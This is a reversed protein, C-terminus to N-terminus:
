SKKVPAPPRPTLIEGALIWRNPDAKLDRSWVRIYHGKQEPGEAPQWSYTGLAYAFDNAKSAGQKLAEWTWKGEISKLYQGIAVTGDIPVRGARILRTQNTVSEAYAKDAGAETTRAVFRAEGGYAAVASPSAAAPALDYAALPIDPAISNGPSIGHDLLVRWDGNKQKQWVSFFQGFSPPLKPDTKSMVKSPGTSMGLDGSASLVTIQSKWDLVIAPEAQARMYTRGDVPDPRLLLSDDAFFEIFAARMGNKVSYAAFKGEEAALDKATFEAAAAHTTIMAALLGAIGLVKNRM